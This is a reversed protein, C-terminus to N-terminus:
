VLDERLSELFFADLVSRVCPYDLMESMIPFCLELVKMDHRLFFADASRRDPFEEDVAFFKELIDGLHDDIYLFGSETKKALTVEVLCENLIQYFGEAIIEISLLHKSFLDEQEEYYPRYRNWLGIALQNGFLKAIKQQSPNETSLSDFTELEKQDKAEGSKLMCKEIVKEDKTDPSFRVRRASAAEKPMCLGGASSGAGGVGQYARMWLDQESRGGGTDAKSPSSGLGYEGYLSALAAESMSSPDAAVTAITRQCSASVRADLPASDVAGVSPHRPASIHAPSLKSDCVNLPLM